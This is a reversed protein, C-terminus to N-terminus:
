ALMLGHGRQFFHQGFRAAVLVRQQVKRRALLVARDLQHDLELVFAEAQVGVVRRDVRAIDFM